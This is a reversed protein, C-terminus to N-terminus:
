NFIENMLKKMSFIIEINPELTIENLTKYIILGDIKKLNYMKCLKIFKNVQDM